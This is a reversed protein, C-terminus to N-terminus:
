QCGLVHRFGRAIQLFLAVVLASTTMVEREATRVNTTSQLLIQPSYHGDFNVYPQLLALISICRSVQLDPCQELIQEKIQTGYALELYLRCRYCYACHLICLIM